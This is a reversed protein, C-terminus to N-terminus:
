PREGERAGPATGETVKTTKKPSPASRNPKPTPLKRTFILGHWNRGGDYTQDLVRIATGDSNVEAYFAGGEGGASTPGAHLTWAGTLKRGSITGEIHYHDGSETWTADITFSAGSTRIAAKGSGYYEWDGDLSQRNQATANSTSFLLALLSLALTLKASFCM